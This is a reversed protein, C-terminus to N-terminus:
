VRVGRFIAIAKQRVMFLEQKTLRRKKGWDNLLQKYIENIQQTETLKYEVVETKKEQIQERREHTLKLKPKKSIWLKILRNQKQKAKKHYLAGASDPKNRANRNDSYATNKYFNKAM